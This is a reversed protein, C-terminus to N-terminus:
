ELWALVNIPLNEAKTGPESLRIKGPSPLDKLILTYYYKSIPNRFKKPTPQGGLTPFLRVPNGKAGNRVAHIAKYTSM